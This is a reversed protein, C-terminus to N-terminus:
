KRRASRYWNMIEEGTWFVVGRKKRLAALVQELYKIRFPTGSIYPHVAISMIKARSASEAYLREFYDMCRTYLEQPAQHQVIMLAIDNLEISYPLTLLPGKATKIEVPEDDIPWDCIYKIGAEVLNEPTDLTQTFGPGLWGVPPKGTFSKIVKVTKKITARQNPELQIPRQDYSHGMFEWGAEHAAKAIRPYDECVRANISLSPTIKLKDFAAKLRWFGVRNGYEHWAWHPVDPLRTVGTPPPLAQRPMPREIDWVEVNVIPWVVLRVGRPLKLPKRDVIASYPLRQEPRM